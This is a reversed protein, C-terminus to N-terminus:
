KSSYFDYIIGFNNLNFDLSYDISINILQNEEVKGIVITDDNDIVLKNSNSSASKIVLPTVYGLSDCSPDTGDDVRLILLLKESNKDAKFVIKSGKNTHRASASSVYFPNGSRKKKDTKLKNDKHKSNEKKGEIGDVDRQTSPKKSVKSSSRSTKSKSTANGLMQISLQPIDVDFSEDDNKEIKSQLFTKIVDFSEQFASRNSLYKFRNLYLDAHMSGEIKRMLRSLNTGRHPLILANFNRYESFNGVSLPNPLSKSIWMGNRCVALQTDIESNEFCVLVKGEGTDVEQRDGYLLINYFKKAIKYSPLKERGSKVESTNEIVSGLTDKDLLIKKDKDVVEVVLQEQHISVFFNRVVSSSILDFFKDKKQGFFNFGFIALVSGSGPLNNLENSIIEPIKNESPYVDNGEELARDSTTYFGYGTKLGDGDNFTRLLAQGSAVRSGDDHVGGYFVYRLGSVNFASFHGNGYSGGATPDPKLSIGDAFIAHLRIDDFGIGNDSVMLVSISDNDLEKEIDQLIDKEQDSGSNKINKAISKIAILYEDYGPIDAKLASKVEFKIKAQKKKADLLAADLSNQVIERVILSPDKDNSSSLSSNTFGTQQVTPYFRLKQESNM